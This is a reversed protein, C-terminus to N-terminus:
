PLDGLPVQRGALDHSCDGLFNIVGDTLTLHCQVCAFGSPQDPHERDYSCWCPDGPKHVDTFHGTKTILSPSLTPRERDGNWTWGQGAAADALKVPVTHHDRCGPCWFMLRATHNGKMLDTKM